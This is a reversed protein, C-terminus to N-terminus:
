ENVSYTADEAEVNLYDSVKKKKLKELEQLLVEPSPLPTKLREPFRGVQIEPVQLDRYLESANDGMHDDIYEKKLKRLNAVAKWDRDARAKIIDENLGKLEMDVNLKRNHEMGDSYIRLAIDIDRRATRQSISNGDEDPKTLVAITAQYSGKNCYIQFALRYRNRLEMLKKSLKASKSDSNEYEIIKDLDTRTTLTKMQRVPHTGEVVHNKGRPM